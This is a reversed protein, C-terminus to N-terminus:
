AKSRTPNGGAESPLALGGFIATEAIKRAALRRSNLATPRNNSAAVGAGGDHGEVDTSRSKGKERQPM